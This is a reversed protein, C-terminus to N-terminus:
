SVSRNAQGWFSSLNYTYNQQNTSRIFAPKISRQLKPPLLGSAPLLGFKSAGRAFEGPTQYGLSSHPRRRITNSGGARWSSVRKPWAHRLARPKFVRRAAQRPLERHPRKGVSQGAQHLPDQDQREKLWDQIAYAIFEPGNDSRLISQRATVSRHGSRDGHDRGGGPDVLGCTGGPMAAYARRALDPHSLANRERDPRGCFGLEMGAAAQERALTREAALGPTADAEAKAAGATRGAACGSCESQILRSVTEDCFRRSVGTAM